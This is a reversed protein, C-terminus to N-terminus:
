TTPANEVLACLWIGILAVGAMSLMCVAMARLRRPRASITFRFVLLMGYLLILVVAVAIAIGLSRGPSVFILMSLPICSAILFLGGMVIWILGSSTRLAPQNKM